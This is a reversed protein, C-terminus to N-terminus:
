ARTWHFLGQSVASSVLQSVPLFECNASPKCPAGNSPKFHTYRARTEKTANPAPHTILAIDRFVHLLHLEAHAVPDILSLPYQTYCVDPEPAPTTPSWELWRRQFYADRRESELAAAQQETLPQPSPRASPSHQHHRTSYMMAGLVCVSFLVVAALVARRALEVM